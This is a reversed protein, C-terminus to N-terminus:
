PGGWVIELEGDCRDAKMAVFARDRDAGTSFVLRFEPVQGPHLGSIRVKKATLLAKTWRRRAWPRWWPPRTM